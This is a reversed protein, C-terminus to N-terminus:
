LVENIEQKDLLDITEGSVTVIDGLLDVYIEGENIVIGFGYCEKHRYYKSLFAAAEKSYPKIVNILKKCLKKQNDIM